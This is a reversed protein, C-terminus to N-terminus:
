EPESQAPEDLDARFGDRITGGDAITSPLSTPFDCRPDQRSLGALQDLECRLGATEFQALCNTSSAAVTRLRAPWPRPLDRPTATGLTIKALLRELDQIGELV